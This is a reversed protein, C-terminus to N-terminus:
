FSYNLGECGGVEGLQWKRFMQTHLSCLLAYNHAHTHVATGAPNEPTHSHANRKVHCQVTTSSYMTIALYLVDTQTHACHSMICCSDLLNDFRFLLVFNQPICIFPPVTPHTLPFLQTLPTHTLPSLSLVHSWNQKKKERHRNDSDGSGTCEHDWCFEPLFAPHISPHRSSTVYCSSIDFLRFASQALRTKGQTHFQLVQHVRTPHMSGMSQLRSCSQYDLM